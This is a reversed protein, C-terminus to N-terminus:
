TGASTLSFYYTITAGARSWSDTYACHHSYLTLPDVTHTLNGVKDELSITRNELSWTANTNTDVKDELSITRNELSSTANTITNVKTELDSHKRLLQALQGDIIDYLRANEKLAEDLKELIDAQPHSFTLPKPPDEIKLKNEAASLAHIAALVSTLLILVEMRM